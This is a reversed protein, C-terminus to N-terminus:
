PRGAREDLETAELGEDPATWPGFAEDLADEVELLAARVRRRHPEPLRLLPGWTAGLGRRIDKVAEDVSQQMEDSMARLRAARAREEGLSIM